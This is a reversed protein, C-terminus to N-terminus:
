AISLIKIIKYLNLRNLSTKGDRAGYDLWCISLFLYLPCAQFVVCVSTILHVDFKGVQVGQAPPFLSKQLNLKLTKTEVEPVIDEVSM